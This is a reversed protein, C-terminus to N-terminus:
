RGKHKEVTGLAQITDQVDQSQSYMYITLQTSLFTATAQTTSTLPEPTLLCPVIFDTSLPPLAVVSNLPYNYYFFEDYTAYFGHEKSMYDVLQWLKRNESVYLRTITPRHKDWDRESAWKKHGEQGTLAHNELTEAATTALKPQIEPVTAGTITGTSSSSASMTASVALTLESSSDEMMGFGDASFPGPSRESHSTTSFGTNDWAMMNQGPFYAPDSTTITPFFIPSTSFQFDHVFPSTEVDSLFSYGHGEAGYFYVDDEGGTPGARGQRGDETPPITHQNYSM